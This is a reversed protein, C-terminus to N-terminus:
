GEGFAGEVFTQFSESDGIPLCNVLIFTELILIFFFPPPGKLKFYM